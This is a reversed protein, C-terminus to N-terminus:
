PTVNPYLDDDLNPTLFEEKNIGGYSEIAADFAANTNYNALYTNSVTIFQTSVITKGNVKRSHVFAVGGNVPGSLGLCDDVVNFLSIDMVDKLLTTTASTDLTVEVADTSCYPVNTTANMYQRIIFASLQDGNRWGDNNDIIAASFAALTTSNGLALTGVAIDTEPVNANGFDVNISPLQGRTIQYADVVCGSQDAITKTLAVNSSNLNAQMFMNYDSLKPDKGEFSPHLTGNFSRYLNVLNAWRVRRLMQPLTRVPTAKKEVKEKAITQGKLRSFTWNGASGRLKTNIGTLIAM